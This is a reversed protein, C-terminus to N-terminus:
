MAHIHLEESKTMMTGSTMIYCDKRCSCPATALETAVSSPDLMTSSGTVMRTFRPSRLAEVEPDEDPARPPCPRCDRGSGRGKGLFLVGGEELFSAGEPAGGAM